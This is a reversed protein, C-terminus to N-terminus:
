VLHLLVLAICFVRRPTLELLFLVVSKIRWLQHLEPLIALNLYRLPIRKRKSSSPVLDTWSSGLETVVAPNSSSSCANIGRSSWCECTWVNPSDCTPLVLIRFGSTAIHDPGDFDVDLCHSTLVPPFRIQAMLDSARPGVTMRDLPLHVLCTKFDDPSDMPLSMHHSSLMESVWPALLDFFMGNSSAIHSIMIKDYDDMLSSMHCFIMMERVRSKFFDFLFTSLVISTYVWLIIM